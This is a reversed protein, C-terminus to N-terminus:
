TLRKLFSLERHFGSFRRRSNNIYLLKHWHNQAIIRCDSMRTINSKVKDADFQRSHLDKATKGCSNTWLDGALSSLVNVFDGVHDRCDHGCRDVEM